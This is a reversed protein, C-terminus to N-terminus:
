SFCNYYFASFNKINLKQYLFVLLYSQKGKFFFLLLTLMISPSFLLIRAASPYPTQSYFCLSQAPIAGFAQLVTPGCLGTASGLSCPCGM